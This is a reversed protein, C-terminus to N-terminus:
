PVTLKRVGAAKGDGPLTRDIPNMAGGTTVELKFKTKPTGVIRYGVDYTDNPLDLKKTGSGQGHLGAVNGPTTRSQITVAMVSRPCDWKFTVDPM